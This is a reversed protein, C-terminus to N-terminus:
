RAILAISFIVVMGLIGLFNRRDMRAKGQKAFYNEVFYKDKM